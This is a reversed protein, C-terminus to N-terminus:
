QEEKRHKQKPNYKVKSRVIRQKFLSTRLIRAIPNTKFKFKM